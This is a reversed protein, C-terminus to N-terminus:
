EAAAALDLPPPLADLLAQRERRARRANAGRKGAAFFAPVVSFDGRVIAGAMWKLLAGVPVAEYPSLERDVQAKLREQLEASQGAKEYVLRNLPNCYSPEAMDRAFNFLDISDVDRQRWYRVLAEDTGALIARSLNRADRLADTIGFGPTPDKHLGADGVLAFGPGAPERFFYRTKLLGVLNGERENNEVLAATLPWARLAQLFAEEHRGKWSPLEEVLPTVGILLLDSDTQFVLRITDGFFAIVLGIERLAPTWAANAPFYAWYGFRPNDYGLYEKAGAMEAVTSRRGDAGVVVPARYQHSVGAHTAEVGVVRGGDRLLAVVKHEDRLEAGAAVAMEQLIRDLHMRRLAHAPRRYRVDAAQGRLQLRVAHCAPSLKRVEAAAGLEDLWKMGLPAVVHTSMPQDSPLKGADLLLVRQGARALLTALPAGACRAGVVITDFWDSGMALERPAAAGDLRQM